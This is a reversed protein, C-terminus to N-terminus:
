HIIIITGFLSETAAQNSNSAIGECRKQSTSVRLSILKMLSSCYLMSCFLRINFSTLLRQELSCPQVSTYFVSTFRFEFLTSPSDQKTKISTEDYPVRNQGNGTM